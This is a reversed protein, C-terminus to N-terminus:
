ASTEGDPTRWEGYHRRFYMLPAGQGATGRVVLGVFVTHDGAPMAKTVVCEAHALAGEILPLGDEGARVPLGAFKDDAHRAFREAVAQQDGGLFNVVFRGRSTVARATYRDSGLCILLQPPSLSVSSVASATLGIPRGAEDLTTIVTVGTPFSGMIERFEASSVAEAVAPDPSLNM